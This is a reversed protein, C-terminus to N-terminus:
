ICVREQWGERGSICTSVFTARGLWSIMKDDEQVMLGLLAEPLLKSSVKNISGKKDMDSLFELNCWLGKSFM